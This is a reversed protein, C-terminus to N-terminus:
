ENSCIGLGECWVREYSRSDKRKWIETINTITKTTGTLFTFGNEDIEVIQQLPEEGVMVLDGVELFDSLSDSFKVITEKNYKYRNESTLYVENNSIVYGRNTFWSALGIEGDGLLIYKSM